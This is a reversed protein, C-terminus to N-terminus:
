SWTPTTYLCGLYPIQRKSDLEFNPTAIIIHFWNIFCLHNWFMSRIVQLFSYTWLFGASKSSFIVSKTRSFRFLFNLRVAVFSRLSLTTLWSSLVVYKQESSTAVKYRYKPNSSGFLPAVWYQGFSKELLPYSFMRLPERSGSLYITNSSARSEM